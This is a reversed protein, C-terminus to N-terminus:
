RWYANKVTEGGAPRKQRYFVWGLSELAQAIVPRAESYKYTAFATDSLASYVARVTVHDMPEGSPTPMENVVRGIDGIFDDSPLYTVDGRAIEALKQANESLVLRTKGQKYYHYMEAWVMDVTLPDIFGKKEVKVPLYRRNGTPDTLFAKNNTSGGIVYKRPHPKPLKDYIARYEDNLSTVMSKLQACSKKTIGELEEYNVILKGAVAEGLRKRDGIEASSIEGYWESCHALARFFSTKGLGQAGQLILMHDYQTGPEFVRTVAASLFTFIAERTYADDNCGFTDILLTEARKVGDWRLNSFYLKATDTHPALTNIIERIEDTTTKMRRFDRYIHLRSRISLIDDDTLSRWKGTLGPDTEARQAFDNIRVDKLLDYEFFFKCKNYMSNALTVNDKGYEYPFDYYGAKFILHRIEDDWDDEDSPANDIGPERKMEEATVADPLMKTRMEEM